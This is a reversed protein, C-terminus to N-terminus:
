FLPSLILIFIIISYCPLLVSTRVDETYNELLQFIYVTDVGIAQCASSRHQFLNVIMNAPFM